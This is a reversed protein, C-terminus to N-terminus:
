MSLGHNHSAPSTVDACRDDTARYGAQRLAQVCETLDLGTNLSINVITRFTPQKKGSELNHYQRPSICCRMAMEEQTLRLAQRKNFLLNGVVSNFLQNMHFAGRQHLYWYSILFLALLRIFKLEPFETRILILFYSLLWNYLKITKRLLVVVSIHFYACCWDYM